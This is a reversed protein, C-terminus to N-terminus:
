GRREVTVLYVDNERMPYERVLTEGPGVRVSEEHVPKGNNRQQIKAVQPRTLQSPRSLDLYDAFPDNIRYGVRYVVLRYAGPKLNAFRLKATGKSHPKVDTVFFQQNNVKDPIPNTFNWFLAQVGGRSDTATLSNPDACRLRTPGLKNLYEYARFAPKKIDQYNVLGFGGHFPTMRPGAEEFIDTFTWYSMSDADEIAGKLKELIYAASVYSDHVPDAPTYSSSWETMHLPLSPIASEKIQKRVRKVDGIISEPNKSLVTGRGGFEDLYGVDVGYTHTTIFDVPTKNDVCYRIFEPVWAAGATAPGGVRLDHNVGKISNATVSYLHFYEKQDAAWFGRLNPENWVEFYWKKVEDLGYREIWHHTLAAVLDSWKGYDKPPTVNGRWWFITNNGSALGGPMFGLEVFPRVKLDVLFDYLEDIYQWNYVAKGREERYVGMDDTLLGHMRIYEFGCAEKAQRLQRQWDARLGENARGAGVCRRFVDGLPGQVANVDIDIQRTRNGSQAGLAGAVLCLSLAGALGYKRM